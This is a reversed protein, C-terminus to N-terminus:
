SRDRVCVEAGAATARASRGVLAPQACPIVRFIIERRALCHKPTSKSGIMIFFADALKGSSTGFMCRSSALLGSTTAAAMPVPLTSTIKMSRAPVADAPQSVGMTSACVCAKWGLSMTSLTLCARRGIGASRACGSEREDCPADAGRVDQMRLVRLVSVGGGDCGGGTM